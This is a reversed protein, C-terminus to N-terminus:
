GIVVPDICVGVELIMYLLALAQPELPLSAESTPQTHYTTYLVRGCGQQVSTSVPAGLAEVWVRPKIKVLKGDADPGMADQVSTIQTWADKVSSLRMGQGSLWADLGPEQQTVAQTGGGGQCASGLTTDQGAWKVYPPFIQRVYEYHWDSVYVRGGRQAFDLLTTKVRPDSNFVGSCKPGTGPEGNNPSGSCPLFVIHYKGIEKPDTILPYPNPHPASELPHALGYIAFAKADNGLVVAKGLGDATIKAALGMRALVIEVPDWAGRMVAIKPVDDGQAKDTISPMTTLGAPVAQPGEHVTIPRVRRFAGKQVVLYYTGPGAELSFAGTAQTFTHPTGDPLRVCKDCYVGDPIPPPPTGTLYVLAQAIPITGEPALVRGQLTGLKAQPQPKPPQMMGQGDDEGTGDGRAGVACGVLGLLVLACSGRLVWNNWRMRPVM